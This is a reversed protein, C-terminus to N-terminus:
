CNIAFTSSITMIILVYIYPFVKNENMLENSFISTVFLVGLKRIFILIDYYYYKKKFNVYFFGYEYLVTM